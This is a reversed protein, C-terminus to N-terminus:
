LVTVALISVAVGIAVRGGGAGSDVLERKELRKVDATACMEAV